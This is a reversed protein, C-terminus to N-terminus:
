LLILSYEGPLKFPAKLIGRKNQLFKRKQSWHRPVQVTNKYGKLFCLLVPDRATTDWVEVVDPRKVVSKLQAVRM